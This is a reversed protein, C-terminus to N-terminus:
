MARIQSLIKKWLIKRMPLPYKKIDNSAMLLYAKKYKPDKLLSKATEIGKSTITRVLEDSGDDFKEKLFGKECLRGEIHEITPNWDKAM